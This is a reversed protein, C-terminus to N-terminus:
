LVHYIILKGYDVATQHRGLVVTIKVTFSFQPSDSTVITINVIGSSENVVYRPYEFSVAVPAVTATNFLLCCNCIMVDNVNLTYM